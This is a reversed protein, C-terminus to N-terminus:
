RTRELAKPAAPWLRIRDIYLADRDDDPQGSDVGDGVGITLAAIDTLDVGGGTLDSLSIEWTRWPESQVAYAYPHTITAENGAADVVRVYM